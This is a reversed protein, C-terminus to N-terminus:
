THLSDKLSAVLRDLQPALDADLVGLETTIRLNGRARSPDATIRVADPELGLAPRQRELEAADDPHAAIEATRAGRAEALARRALDAIRNPALQLEAGLLREALLRALAVSRELTAADARQEQQTVRLVRAALQAVATARGEAEAALRTHAAVRDAAQLVKAAETQARQLISRAELEADVTAKPIVRASPARRPRALPTANFDGAPIVRGPRITM